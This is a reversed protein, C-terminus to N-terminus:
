YLADSRRSVRCVNWRPTINSFSIPFLCNLKKRKSLASSLKHKDREEELSLYLRQHPLSPTPGTGASGAFLYTHRSLEQGLTLFDVQESFLGEVYGKDTVFAIKEAFLSKLHLAPSDEKQRNTSEYNIGNKFM